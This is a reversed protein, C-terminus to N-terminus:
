HTGMRYVLSHARVFQVVASSRVVFDKANFEPLLSLAKVVLSLTNVYIGQEHQEFIYRLLANELLKLQGLPGPHMSKKKGKLM